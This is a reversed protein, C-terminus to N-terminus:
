DAISRIDNLMGEINNGEINNSKKSLEQITVESREINIVRNKCLNLV